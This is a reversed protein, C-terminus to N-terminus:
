SIEKLFWVLGCLLLRCPRLLGVNSHKLFDRWRFYLRRPSCFNEFEIFVEEFCLSRLTFYCVVLLLTINYMFIMNVTWMGVKDVSAESPLSISVLYELPVLEHNHCCLEVSFLVDTIIVSHLVRYKELKDPFFFNKTISNYLCFFYIWLGICLSM